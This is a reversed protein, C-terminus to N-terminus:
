ARTEETRELANAKIEGTHSISWKRPIADETGTWSLAQGVALLFVELGKGQYIWYRKAKYIRSACRAQHDIIAWQDLVLLVHVCRKTGLAKVHFGGYVPKLYTGQQRAVREYYAPIM